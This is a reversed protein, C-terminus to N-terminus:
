IRREWRSVESFSTYTFQKIGSNIAIKKLREECRQRTVSNMEDVMRSLEAYVDVRHRLHGRGSMVEMIYLLEAKDSDDVKKMRTVVAPMVEPGRDAISDAYSLDPNHISMECLYLDLQKEVPYTLFETHRQERPLKHFDRCEPSSSRLSFSCGAMLALPFLCLLLPLPVTMASSKIM